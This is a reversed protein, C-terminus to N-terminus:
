CFNDNIKKIKNIINQDNSFTYKNDRHWKNYKTHEKIISETDNIYYVGKSLKKWYDQSKEKTRSQEELYIRLYYRKMMEDLPIDLLFKYDAKINYIKNSPAFNDLSGV